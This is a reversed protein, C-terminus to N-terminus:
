RRRVCLYVLGASLALASAPEPIDSAFGVTYHIGNGNEFNEFVAASAVSAGLMVFLVLSIKRM